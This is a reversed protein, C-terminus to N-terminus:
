DGALALKEPHEQFYTDRWRSATGESCSARRALDTDRLAPNEVLLAEIHERADPAQSAQEPHAEFYAVRINSAYKRSCGTLRALDM